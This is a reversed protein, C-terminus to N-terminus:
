RGVEIISFTGPIMPGRNPYKGPTQTAPAPGFDATLLFVRNTKIDLTSTRANRQTALNQEVFFDTPSKEKIITLTGDSNSSFAELTNPNFLAGDTGNGIPLSSLIEGTEAKMMVMVSPKRCAVFLIGNERDLALGACNGGSGLLPLVKEIKLTSSDIVAIEDKDEIDVYVRGEGDSAAQEPAGGLDITGISSAEDANIVTVNPANHSFVFVRDSFQDCLIGDPNGEVHIKDRVAFTRSDWMIVPNSTAFGHHSKQSVAVGHASVAPIEGVRDLTDLDYISIYGFDGLRPIYVNRNASDAYVYDYGGEGGIKMNEIVRYNADQASISAFILISFLMFCLIRRM